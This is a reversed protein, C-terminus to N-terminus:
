TGGNLHHLHHFDPVVLHCLGVGDRVVLVTSALVASNYCESVALVAAAAALNHVEVVAAIRREVVQLRIM